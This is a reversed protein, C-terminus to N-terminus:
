ALQELRYRGLTQHAQAELNSSLQYAQQGRRGWQLAQVSLYAVHRSRQPPFQSRGM